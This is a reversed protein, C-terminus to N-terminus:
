RITVVVDVTIVPSLQPSNSIYEVTLGLLLRSRLIGGELM